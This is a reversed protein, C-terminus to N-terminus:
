KPMEETIIGSIDILPLQLTKPAILGGTEWLMILANAPNSDLLCDWKKSRFDLCIMMM